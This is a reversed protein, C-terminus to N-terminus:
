TPTSKVVSQCNFKIESISRYVNELTAGPSLPFAQMVHLHCESDSPNGSSLGRAMPEPWQRVVRWKLLPLLVVM